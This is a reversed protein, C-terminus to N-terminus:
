VWKLHSVLTEPHWHHLLHSTALVAMDGQGRWGIEVSCLRGVGTEFRIVGEEVWCCGKEVGSCVYSQEYMCKKKKRKNNNYKRRNV